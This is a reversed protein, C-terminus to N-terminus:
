VLLLQEIKARVRSDFNGSGVIKEAENGKKDLIVATPTSSVDYHESISQSKNDKVIDWKSNHKDRWEDLEDYDDSNDITITVILLQDSTYDDDINALLPDTEKCYKCSLQFFYLLVVKGKHDELDIKDGDITTFKDDAPNSNASIYVAAGIVSSVFISLILVGVLTYKVKKKKVSEPSIKSDPKSM